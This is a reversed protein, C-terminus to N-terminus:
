KAAVGCYLWRSGESDALAPDECGWLGVWTVDLEAGPYPPVLRLGDFFGRVEDRTRHFSGGAARRGVEALLEVAQPPKNDNTMHSLSLYSGPSFADLYRRVLAQPDSEDPVFHLVATLLLGAPQSFDILRRLDPHGLVSDPDRMDALVVKTAPDDRLLDRGHALVLPDNDVYVVRAGPAVRRVVEHTNGVTPLGSGIDIFQRVGQEAIYRAARQHFGRNAFASDVLEPARSKLLEAAARDSEFNQEGGLLYDYVRAPSPRSPDVGPSSDVGPPFDVGPPPDQPGTM